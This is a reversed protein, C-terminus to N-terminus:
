YVVFTSLYFLDRNGLVPLSTSINTLLSQAKYSWLPLTLNDPYKDKAGNQILISM